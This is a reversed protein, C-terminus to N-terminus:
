SSAQTGQGTWSTSAQLFQAPHVFLGQQLVTLWSLTEKGNTCTKLIMTCLM